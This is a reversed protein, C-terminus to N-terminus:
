NLRYPIKVTVKVGGLRISKGMEVGVGKMQHFALLRFHVNLLGVNTLSAYEEQSPTVHLLRTRFAELREEDYGKGNDEFTISVFDGDRQASVELRTPEGTTEIGHKIANEAIPQLIVKLCLVERCDEPLDIQFSVEDGFRIRSINMYHSVHAIEDELKVLMDQYNSTYRLM